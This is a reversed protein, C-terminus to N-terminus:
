HKKALEVLESFWLEELRKPSALTKLLRYASPGVVTLLIARKKDESTIDSAVFYHTLREMYECWEEQASDFTGIVEQLAVPAAIAAVSVTRPAPEGGDGGSTEGEEM